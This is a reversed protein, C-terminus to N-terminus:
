RARPGEKDELALWDMPCEMGSIEILDESKAIVGEVENLRVWEGSWAVALLSSRDPVDGVLLGVFRELISEFM